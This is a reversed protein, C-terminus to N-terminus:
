YAAHKCFTANGESDYFQSFIPEHFVILLKKNIPKMSANLQSGPVAELLSKFCIQCTAISFVKISADFSPINLMRTAACVCRVHYEAAALDFAPPNTMMFLLLVMAVFGSLAYIKAIRTVRLFRM